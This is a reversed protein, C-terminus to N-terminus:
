GSRGSPPVSTAGWFEPAFFAFRKQPDTLNHDPHHKQTSWTRASHRETTCLNGEGARIERSPDHPLFSFAGPGAVFPRQTRAITIGMNRKRSAPNVASIDLPKWRRNKKALDGEKARQNSGNDFIPTRQKGRRLLLIAIAVGHEPKGKGVNPARCMPLWPSSPPSLGACLRTKWYDPTQQAKIPLLM